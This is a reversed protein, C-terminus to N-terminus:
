EHGLQAQVCDLAKQLQRDQFEVKPTAESNLVDRAARDKEYQKLEEDTLAVEYGPDPSVGWDDSDKADPFRNMNKGNPRSYTAVPLKLTGVGGKLPILTRVLAQGFTREGVVVARQHDQLCAAVIEAASATNRNVLLAL